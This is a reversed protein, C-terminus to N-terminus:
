KKRKWRRRNKGPTSHEKTNVSWEQLLKGLIDPTLLGKKLLQETLRGDQLNLTNIAQLNKAKQFSDSLKEKVSSDNGELDEFNENTKRQKLMQHVRRTMDFDEDDEVSINVDQNSKSAKLLKTINYVGIQIISDLEQQMYRVQNVDPFM